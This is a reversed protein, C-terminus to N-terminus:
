AKAKHKDLEAAQKKILEAMQDLQVQMATMKEATKGPGAAAELYARAKQKYSLAGTGVNQLDQDPMAALDEVTMIGAAILTRQAAGGLVPWGKIPTGDVVGTEGKQWREFSDKFASYWTSPIDTRKRLAELWIKAEQELTDRSGPRSIIAYAVDIEVTHGAKQSAERDEKGRMEWMVYPPREGIGEVAM